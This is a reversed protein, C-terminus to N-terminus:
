DDLIQAEPVTDWVPSSLVLTQAGLIGATIAGQEASSLAQRTPAEDEVIKV